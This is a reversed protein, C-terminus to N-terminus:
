KECNLDSIIKKRILAGPELNQKVQAIHLPM